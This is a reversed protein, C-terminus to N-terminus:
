PWNHYPLACKSYHAGVIIHRRKSPPQLDGAKATAIGALYGCYWPGAIRQLWQSEPLFKPVVPFELQNSHLFTHYMTTTRGMDRPHLGLFKPFPSSVFVPPHQLGGARLWEEALFQSSFEQSIPNDFNDISEDCLEATTYVGNVRGNAVAYWPM